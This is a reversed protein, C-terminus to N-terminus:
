VPVGRAEARAEFTALASRLDDLDGSVVVKRAAALLGSRVVGSMVLLDGIDGMAERSLHGEEKARTVIQARLDADKPDDMCAAAAALLAANCSQAAATEAQSFVQIALEEVARCDIAMANLEDHTLTSM